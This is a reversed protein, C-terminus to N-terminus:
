TFLQPVFVLTQHLAMLFLASDLLVGFFPDNIKFIQMEDLAGNM